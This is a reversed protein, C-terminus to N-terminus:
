SITGMPFPFRLGLSVSCCVRAAAKDTEKLLPFLLQSAVAHVPRKVAGAIHLM